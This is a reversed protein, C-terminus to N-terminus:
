KKIIAEISTKWSGTIYYPDGTNIDIPFFDWLDYPDTFYDLFSYNIYTTVLWFDEKDIVNVIGAGSVTAGGVSFIIPQFEYSNIFDYSFSGEGNKRANKIVDKEVRQFITGGDAEAQNYTKAHYIVKELHGIEHLKVIQSKKHKYHYLFDKKTWSPLQDEAAYTM